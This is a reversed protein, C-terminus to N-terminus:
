WKGVNFPPIPINVSIRYIMVIIIEHKQCKGVCNTWSQLKLLTLTESSIILLCKIFGKEFCFRLTLPLVNQFFLPAAAGEARFGGIYVTRLDTLPVVFVFNTSSFNFLHLSDSLLMSSNASPNIACVPKWISKEFNGANLCGAIQLYTTESPTYM